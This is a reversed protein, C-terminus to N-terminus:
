GGPSAGAVPELVRRLAERLIETSRNADSVSFTLPPRFRISRSGCVLTALGNEWCETRLADRAAGDPMDFAIMLGRGRLNTMAPFEQQLEALRGLLHEGVTAANEVLNDEEIIQLYRACRVMDALNGGWTSNIRSSVRFVNKEVSDIRRTSMIGCVQTKKGFAVLDPTVDLQEFAWMTGTLGMGTQVEDFILLAEHRDALDRLRRMFAPRFHRDGGEGQIPEILIAAIGHPDRRFAEEIEAVSAEEAATIADEDLPYTIAPNSIRPWDFKPFRDTKTPDTNTVSLTYGSRGHFADKFHLVRDGGGEIGLSLNRQVKWDFAAKMANEVALAGGAVFFLYRFEDPVAVRRFTDVFAAYEPSYVDSNAPNALTAQMLSSRFGDDEMKPHNHGIPLTAFYTYCDIYEKGTLADVMVSGHSKELDIVIHFGDVLINDKLTPFVEGPPLSIKPM